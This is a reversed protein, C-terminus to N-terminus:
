HVEDRIHSSATILLLALTECGTQVVSAEDIKM